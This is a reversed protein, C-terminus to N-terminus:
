APAPLASRTIWNLTLSPPSLLRPCVTVRATLLALSAGTSSAVLEGLRVPITSSAAAGVLPLVAPLVGTELRSPPALSTSEPAKCPAAHASVGVFAALFAALAYKM